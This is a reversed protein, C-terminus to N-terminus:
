HTHGSLVSVLWCAWLVMLNCLNEGQKVNVFKYCNKWSKKSRVTATIRSGKLKSKETGM